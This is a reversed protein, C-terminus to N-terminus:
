RLQEVGNEHILTVWYEEVERLLQTVAITRGMVIVM